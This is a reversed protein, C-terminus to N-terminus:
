RILVDVVGVKAQSATNVFAATPATRSLPRTPIRGAHSQWDRDAGQRCMLPPKHLETEVGLTAQGGEVDIFYVKLTEAGRLPFSALLFVLTVLYTRM